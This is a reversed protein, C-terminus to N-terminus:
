LIKVREADVSEIRGNPHQILAFAKCRIENEYRMLDRDVSRVSYHGGYGMPADFIAVGGIQKIELVHCDAWKSPDNRHMAMESKKGFYFQGKKNIKM